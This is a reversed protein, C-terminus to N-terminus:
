ADAGTDLHGRCAAPGGTPYVFEILDCSPPQVTMQSLGGGHNSREEVKHQATEEAQESRALARHSLRIQFDDDKPVL